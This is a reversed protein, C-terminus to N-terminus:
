KWPTSDGGLVDDIPDDPDPKAANRKVKTRGKAPTEATPAAPAPASSASLLPLAAPPLVTPERERWGPVQDRPVWGAVEIVPSFFSKGIAKKTVSVRDVFRVVPQM